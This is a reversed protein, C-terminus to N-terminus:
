AKWNSWHCFFRACPGLAPRSTLNAGCDGACGCYRTGRCVGAMPDALRSRRPVKTSCVSSARKMQSTRRSRHITHPKFHSQPHPWSRRFDQRARQPPSAREVTAYPPLNRSAAPTGPALPTRRPPLFTRRAAAATRAAPRPRRTRPARTGPLFPARPSRPRAAGPWRPRRWATPSRRSAMGRVRPGRWRRTPPCHAPRRARRRPRRTRCPTQPPHLSISIKPCAPHKTHRPQSPLATSQRSFWWRQASQRGVSGRVM